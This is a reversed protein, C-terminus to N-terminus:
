ETNFICVHVVLHYHGEKMKDGRVMVEDTRIRNADYIDWLEM